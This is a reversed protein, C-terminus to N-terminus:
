QSDIPLLSRRLKQRASALPSREEQSDIESLLMRLWHRPTEPPLM